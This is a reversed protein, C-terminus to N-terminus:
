IAARSTGSMRVLKTGLNILLPLLVSWTVALYTILMITSHNTSLAGFSIAALYSSTGAVAGLLVQWGLVLKSMWNLSHNLCLVFMLWLMGLWIPWDTDAYFVDSQILLIDVLWGIPALLLLKFDVKKTPSLYFHVVLLSFIIATAYETLLAASFWALEFLVLNILWFKRM